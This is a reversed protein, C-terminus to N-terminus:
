PKPEDDDKKESALPPMAEDDALPRSYYSDYILRGLWQAWELHTMWRGATGNWVQNPHLDVM